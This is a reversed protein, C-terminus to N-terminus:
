CASVIATNPAYIDLVLADDDHDHYDQGHNCAADDDPFCGSFWQCCRDGSEVQRAEECGSIDHDKGEHGRISSAM